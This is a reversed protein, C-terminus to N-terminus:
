GTGNWVNLIQDLLRTVNAFLPRGNASRLENKPCQQEHHAECDILDRTQENLNEYPVFQHHRWIGWHSQLYSTAVMANVHMTKGLNSITSSQPNSQPTFGGDVLRRTVNRSELYGCIVFDDSRRVGDPVSKNGALQMFETVNFFSLRVLVGMFGQVIDVFPNGFSDIGGLRYFLYPHRDKNPDTHGIQRFNSRLLAGSLAVVDNPFEASKQALVEVFRPPYIMDDDLYLIRFQHPTTSPAHNKENQQRQQYISEEVPLTHLIKDIAGYDYTPHLITIHGADTYNQLFSPIIYQPSGSAQEPLVLYLKDAQRTQHFLLSDLTPQLFAIRSPVTKMSIVLRGNGNGHNSNNMTPATSNQTEQLPFLINTTTNEQIQPLTNNNPSSTFSSGLEDKTKFTTVAGDHSAEVLGPQQSVSFFVIRGLWFLAVMGGVMVFVKASAAVVNRRPSQLISHSSEDHNSSNRNDEEVCDDNKQVLLTM